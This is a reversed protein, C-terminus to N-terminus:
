SFAPEWQCRRVASTPVLTVPLAAPILSHRCAVSSRQSHRRTARWSCTTPSDLTILTRECAAIAMSITDASIGADKGFANDFIQPYPSNRKIRDVAFGLGAMGIEIPNAIPGKAQVELTSARGDWFQVSLFASNWFTPANPGGIQDHVGISTPYHDDDGEMVNNCSLCSLTGISSLRLDFFLKKGHEFKALASPNDTSEPARTPLSQWDAPGALPSFSLMLCDLSLSCTVKARV